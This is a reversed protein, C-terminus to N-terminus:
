ARQKKGSANKVSDLQRQLFSMQQTTKLKQQDHMNIIHLISCAFRNKWFKNTTACLKM